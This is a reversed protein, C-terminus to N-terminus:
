QADHHLLEVPIPQYGGFIPAPGAHCVYSSYVANCTHSADLQKKLENITTHLHEITRIALELSVKLDFLEHPTPKSQVIAELEAIRQKAAQREQKLRM